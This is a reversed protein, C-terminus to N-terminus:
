AMVAGAALLSCHVPHGRNKKSQANKEEEVEVTRRAPCNFFLHGILVSSM